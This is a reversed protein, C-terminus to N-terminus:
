VTCEHTVALLLGRIILAILSSISKTSTSTCRINVLSLSSHVLKRGVFKGIRSVRKLAHLENM